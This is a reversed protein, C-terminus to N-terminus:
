RGCPPSRFFHLRSYGLSLERGNAQLANNWRAATAASEIGVLLFNRLNHDKLFTKQEDTMSAPDTIGVQFAGGDYHGKFPMGPLFPVMQHPSWLMLGAIQEITLRSALDGARKEAPLRWDEYPLLTETKSLNKFAYGDAEKFDPTGMTLRAGGENHVSVYGDRSIIEYKGTM